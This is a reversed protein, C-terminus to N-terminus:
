KPLYQDKMFEPYYLHENLHKLLSENSIHSYQRESLSLKGKHGVITKVFTPHAKNDYLWTITTHRTCHPTLESNFLEVIPSFYSDKFNHYEFKIQNDTHFLYDIKSSEYWSVFFPYICDAIPVERIGNETKSDEVKFYHENLNVDEKKVNLFESIRLGTYLLILVLQYYKNDKNLWLFDVDKKEFPVKDKKNPNDDKHKEVNVYHGYDKSCIDNKMAYDYLETFLYKVKKLTPYHKGCTDIVRQMDNTKMDKFVCDHLESSIDFSHRYSSISSHGVTPYKEESWLEYVEKFTLAGLELDFPQKHYDALMQLGEERTKAYGIVGFTQKSKGTKEDITYGTTIRVVFPKRRKSANGMKAVGGYGKPLKLGKRKNSM